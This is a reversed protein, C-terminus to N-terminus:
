AYKRLAKGRPKVDRAHRQALKRKRKAAQTQAAQKASATIPSHSPRCYVCFCLIKQM